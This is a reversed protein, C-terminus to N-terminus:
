LRECSSSLAGRTFALLHWRCPTDELVYVRRVTLIRLPENQRAQGLHGFNFISGAETTDPERRSIAPM